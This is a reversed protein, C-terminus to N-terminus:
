TRRGGAAALVAAAAPGTREVAAVWRDLFPLTEIVEPPLIHPWATVGADHKIAVMAPLDDPTAPRIRVQMATLRAISLHGNTVVIRSMTSPSARFGNVSSRRPTASYQTSATRRSASDYANSM